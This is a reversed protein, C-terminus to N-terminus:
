PRRLPEVVASFDADSWDAVARDFMDRATRATSLALGHRNAEDIAYALDKRMLSLKFNVTYDPTAMRGAAAKVLPSGPAGDTLVTLALNRDLGSREILAVADALAAAQAGCVFNNILKIRAGSGIPGFHLIERGMVALLPRARELTAAEGGVLFRLEGSAAQTRSGTVPADIAACGKASAARSLEDVWGPSVTGCEIVLGGAPMAALAGSEGLWVSRSVPDDALMSIVADADAAAAAPTAAVQAGVDRLRNAREASRNWVTVRFGGGLLRAAMGAGMTGVGLFAVSTM